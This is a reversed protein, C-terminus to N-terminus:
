RGRSTKGGVLEFTDSFVFPLEAGHFAGLGATGTPWNVSEAPEHRFDYIYVAHGASVLTQAAARTPCRMVFDGIVQDYPKPRMTTESLSTGIIKTLRTYLPYVTICLSLAVSGVQDAVNQYGWSEPDAPDPDFAQSYRAFVQQGTAAGFTM